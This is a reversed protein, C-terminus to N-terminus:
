SIVGFTIDSVFSWFFSSSFISYFVSLLLVRLCYLRRVKTKGAGSEEGGEGIVFLYGVAEISRELSSM